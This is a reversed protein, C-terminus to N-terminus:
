TKGSTMTQLYSYESFYKVDPRDKEIKKRLKEDSWLDFFLIKCPIQKLPLYREADQLILLREEKKCSMEQLFDIYILPMGYEKWLFNETDKITERLKGDKNKEVDNENGSLVYFRRVKGLVETPISRCIGDTGPIWLIQNIRGIKEFRKVLLDEEIRQRENWFAPESEEKFDSKTEVYYKDACLTLCCNQMTQLLAAKNWTMYTVTRKFLHKKAAYYRPIRCEYIQLVDNSINEIIPKSGVSEKTDQCFWIIRQSMINGKDEILVLYTREYLFISILISVLFAIWAAELSM